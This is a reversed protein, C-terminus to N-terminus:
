NGKGDDVRRNWVDAAAKKDDDAIYFHGDAKFVVKARYLKGTRIGCSSCSVAFYVLYSSGFLEHNKWEFFAEGGCCPCPKLAIMEAKAKDEQVKELIQDAFFDYDSM